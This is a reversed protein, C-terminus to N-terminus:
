ASGRDRVRRVPQPPQPHLFLWGHRPSWLRLVHALHPQEHM